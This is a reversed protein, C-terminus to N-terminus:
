LKTVFHANLHKINPTDNFAISLGDDDVAIITGTGFTKHHVHDGMRFVSEQGQCQEVTEEQWAEGWFALGVGTGSAATYVGSDSRREVVELPLENVFRSPIAPQFQNHIRRFAAFSIMVKHRARTLGVYALRREEELAKLGGSDLARRHPFLGEEWGPLFVADFELGKAAHLTMLTVHDKESTQEGETVLSIHELFGLLSDFEGMAQILERLNELRAPADSSRDAKWMATYGCDELVRAALDPHSTTASAQRWASFFGMLTSLSARAKPKLDDTALLRWAATHLPIRERQGLVHLAQLTVPGLGRKPINLIHEFALDDDPQTIVRLYAIADRIEQREYFRPGSIVRYPVDTVILREEFARTQFGARVLIAMQSLSRGRRHDTEIEEVVIQAERTDDWVGCLLMKDGDRGGKEASKPIAVRLEKGLRHRNHHILSSAAQLIHLRSRYNRELRIVCAGPFDKEFRLINGVEAGRWSYISQDDDGVCCLNNHHQALLRLLLYQVVNSDQYEDVLVYRFKRQYYALVDAHTQFLILTHLLLDGFDVANIALLREQYHQYLSTLHAPTLEGMPEPTVQGPTLGHDKWRQLLTMLNQVPWRKPNIGELEVVQKLLRLQDDVDLVMFNARLGVLEPQRRLMRLAVSHFTGLWTQEAAPGIMALLRERMERAARNTFTVALTQWPAARGSAVIYALRTTLVRTKGTGAGSLVLVFGETTEVAQRQEPNLSELWSLPPSITVAVSRAMEARSDNALDFPDALEPFMSTMTARRCVGSVAQLQM